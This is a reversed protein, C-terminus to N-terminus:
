KRKILSLIKQSAEIKNNVQQKSTDTLGLEDLKKIQNYDFIALPEDSIDFLEKKDYFDEIKILEHKGTFFLELDYLTKPINIIDSMAYMDGIKDIKRYKLEMLLLYEIGNYRPNIVKMVNSCSTTNYYNELLTLQREKEESSIYYYMLKHFLYKESYSLSTQCVEKNRLGEELVKTSNTLAKLFRKDEPISEIQEKKYSYIKEQNPKISYVEIKNGKKDYLYM